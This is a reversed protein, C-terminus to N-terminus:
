YNPILDSLLKGLGRCEFQQLSMGLTRMRYEENKKQCRCRCRQMLLLSIESTDDTKLTSKPGRSLFDKLSVGVPLLGSERAYGSMHGM